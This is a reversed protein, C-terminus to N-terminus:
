RLLIAKEIRNFEGAEFRVFYIGAPLNRGLDDEGSWVVTSRQGNVTLRSFNKVLRGTADYIKISFSPRHSIHSIPYVPMYNGMDGIEYRIETKERFPNPYVVLNLAGPTARKNTEDIGVHYTIEIINSMGSEQISYDYAKIGYYYTSDEIVMNDVYTTESASLSAIIMFPGNENRARYVNYGALDSPPNKLWFLKVGAPISIAETLFPAPPYPDFWNIIRRLLTDRMPAHTIAEIPFTAFLLRYDGSKKLMIPQYTRNTYFVPQANSILGDVFDIGYTNGDLHTFDLPYNLGNSIPDGIIGIITDCGTAENYNIISLISDAFPNPFNDYLYDQGVLLIKGGMRLYGIIQNLARGAIPEAGYRLGKPGLNWIVMGNKRMYLSDPIGQDVENITLFTYGLNAIASEYYKEWGFGWTDLAGIDDDFILVQQPRPFEIYKGTVIIDDLYLGYGPNAFRRNFSVIRVQVSYGVWYNLMMPMLGYYEWLENHSFWQDGTSGTFFYNSGTYPLYINTWTQGGDSTVEILYGQGYDDYPDNYEFNIYFDIICSDSSSVKSLDIPPSVLACYSGVLPLQHTNPDGSYFSHTPTHYEFTTLHWFNGIPDRPKAIWEGMGSECDEYFYTNNLNDYVQIEDIYWMGYYAGSGSQDSEAPDSVGSFRVRIISDKYPTLDFGIEYWDSIPGLGWGPISDYEGVLMNWYWAWSAFANYNWGPYRITDPFLPKWTTGDDTSVWATLCDWADWQPGPYGGSAYECSPRQWMRLLVSDGSVSTLDIPPSILFQAWEDGYGLEQNVWDPKTRTGCWFSHGIYANTDSIHWFTDQVTLDQFTWGVAGSELDDIFITDLDPNRYNHHHENGTARLLSKPSSKALGIGGLLLLLLCLKFSKVM